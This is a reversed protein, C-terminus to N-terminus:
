GTPQHDYSCDFAPLMFRSEPPFGQRLSLLRALFSEDANDEAACSANLWFRLQTYQLPHRISQLQPNIWAGSGSDGAGLLHVHGDRIYDPRLGHFAQRVPANNALSELLRAPLSQVANPGRLCGSVSIGGQLALFHRRSIM